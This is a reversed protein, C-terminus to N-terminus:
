GLDQAAKKVNLSLVINLSQPILQKKFHKQM